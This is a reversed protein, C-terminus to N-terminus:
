GRGGTNDTATIGTGSQEESVAACAESQVDTEMHSLKELMQRYLFLGNPSLKTYTMKHAHDTQIHGLM